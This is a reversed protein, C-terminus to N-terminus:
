AGRDSGRWPCLYRLIRRHHETLGIIRLPRRGLDTALRALVFDEVRRVTRFDITIVGDRQLHLLLDHLEDADSSDFRGNVALVTENEDEIMVIAM